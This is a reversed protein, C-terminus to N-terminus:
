RACHKKILDKPDDIHFQIKWNPDYVYGHDLAAQWWSCAETKRGIALLTNALNNMAYDHKPNIKLAALYESEAEKYKKMEMYCLGMANRSSYDTSDLLFAQQLDNLALQYNAGFYFSVGRIYLAESTRDNTKVWKNSYYVASDAQPPIVSFAYHYALKELVETSTSDMQHALLLWHLAQHRKEDASMELQADEYIYSKLIMVDLRTRDLSLAEDLLKLAQLFQHKAILVKAKETYADAYQDTQIAKDYDMLALATDGMLQRAAARTYYAIGTPTVQIAQTALQETKVYDARAYHISALYLLPTPDSTNLQFSRTLDQIASATDQLYLHLAGRSYLLDYRNSELQIAKNYERLAEHYQELATLSLARQFRTNIAITDITLAKDCDDIAEKYRGNQHLSIARNHYALTYDKDLGIARTYHYRAKLSDNRKDYLLGMNYEIVANKPDLNRATMYYDLAKDTNGMVEHTMGLNVYASTFWKSLVTASKFCFNARATDGLHYYALGLGNVYFAEQPQLKVAKELLPLAKKAYVTDLYNYVLHNEIYAMGEEYASKAKKSKQLACQQFLIALLILSCHRIM